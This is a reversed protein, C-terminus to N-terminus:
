TTGGTTNIHDAHIIAGLRDPFDETLAPAQDPNGPWAPDPWSCRWRGRHPTITVTGVRFRTARDLLECVHTLQLEAVTHVTRTRELDEGRRRLRDALALERRRAATRM